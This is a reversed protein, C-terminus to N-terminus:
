FWQGLGDNKYSFVLEVTTFPRDTSRLATDSTVSHRNHCYKYTELYVPSVQNTAVTDSDATQESYM